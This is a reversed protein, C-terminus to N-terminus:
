VWRSFIAYDINSNKVGVYQANQNIEKLEQPQDTNQENKSLVYRQFLVKKLHLKWTMQSGSM